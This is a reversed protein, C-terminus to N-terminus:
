EPKEEEIVDMDPTLDFGLKIYLKRSVNSMEYSLERIKNLEEAIDPAIKSLDIRVKAEYM